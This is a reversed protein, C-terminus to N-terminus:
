VISLSTQAQGIYILIAISVKLINIGYNISLAVM